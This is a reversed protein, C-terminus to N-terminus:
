AHKAEDSVGERGPRENMAGELADLLSCHSAPGEGSCASALQMLGAKIAELTKIKAEIAAIKAEARRRVDACTTKPDVRLALLEQIERLTFGLAQARKIFHVRVVSEPPFTRYGSATRPPEPLLGQREYYRVTQLNVQCRDALEATTLTEM